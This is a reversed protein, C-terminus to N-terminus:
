LFDSTPLFFFVPSFHVQCPQRLVQDGPAPPAAGDEGHRRRSWGPFHDRVDWWRGQPLRCVLVSTRCRPLSSLSALSPSHSSPHLSLSASVSSLSVSPPRAECGSQTGALSSYASSCRTSETVNKEHFFCGREETRPIISTCDIRVCAYACTEGHVRSGEHIISTSLSACHRVFVGPKAQKIREPVCMLCRPERKFFTPSSSAVSRQQVGQCEWWGAKDNGGGSADHDARTWGRLTQKRPCLQANKWPKKTRKPVVRVSRYASNACSSFCPFPSGIRPHICRSCARAEERRKRKPDRRRGQPFISACWAGGGHWRAVQRRPSAVILRSKPRDGGVGGAGRRWNSASLSM